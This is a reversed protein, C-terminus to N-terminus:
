KAPYKQHYSDTLFPSCVPVKNWVSPGYLLAKKKFSLSIDAVLYM